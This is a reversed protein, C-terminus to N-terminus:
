EYDTVGPDCAALSVQIGMPDFAYEPTCITLSTYEHIQQKSSISSFLVSDLPAVPTVAENDVTMADKNMGIVMQSGSKVLTREAPYFPSNFLKQILQARVYQQNVISAQIAQFSKILFLTMGILIPFLLISEILSQGHTNKVAM